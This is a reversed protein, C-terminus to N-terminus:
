EGMLELNMQEAAAIMENIDIVKEQYDVMIELMLKKVKYIEVSGDFINWLNHYPNLVMKLESFDDVILKAVATNYDDDNILKYVLGWRFPNQNSIVNKIFYRIYKETNQKYIPLGNGLVSSNGEDSQTIYKLFDWALAENETNVNIGYFLVPIVYAEGKTNVFPKMKAFSPAGKEDCLLNYQFNMLNSLHFICYESLVKEDVHNIGYEFYNRVYSYSYRQMIELYDDENYKISNVTSAALNIFNPINVQVKGYNYDVLEDCYHFVPKIYHPSFLYYSGTDAIFENYIDILDYFTVTKYEDTKDTLKPNIANNAVVTVMNFHTPFAYLKGEHEMAEFVNYYYDNLEFLVDHEILKNIDTLHNIITTDGYCLFPTEFLDPGGSALMSQLSAIYEKEDRFKEVNIITEPNLLMYANALNEIDTRNQYTYVTIEGSLPMDQYQPEILLIDQNDTEISLDPKKDTKVSCSSLVFILLPLFICSIVKKYM